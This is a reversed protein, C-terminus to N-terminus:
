ERMPSSIDRIKWKSFVKLFAPTPELGIFIFVEEVKLTSLEEIQNDKLFLSEVAETGRIEEVVKNPLFKIKPHSLM